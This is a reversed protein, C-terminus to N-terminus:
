GLLQYDFLDEPNINKLEEKFDPLQKLILWNLEIQRKVIEGVNFPQNTSWAQHALCVGKFAKLIKVIDSTM